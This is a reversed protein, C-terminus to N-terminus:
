SGGEVQDRRPRGRPRPQDAFHQLDRLWFSWAGDPRRRGRLRGEAAYRRLLQESLGLLRGAEAVTLPRQRAM